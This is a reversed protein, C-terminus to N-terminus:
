KLLLKCYNQSKWYCKGLNWYKWVIIISFYCFIETNQALIWFYKRVWPRMEKFLISFNLLLQCGQIERSLLRRMCACECDCRANSRECDWKRQTWFFEWCLGTAIFSVTYCDLCQFVCSWWIARSVHASVAFKLAARLCCSFLARPPLRPIM